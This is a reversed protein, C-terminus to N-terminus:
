PQGGEVLGARLTELVRPWADASARANADPDGGGTMRGYDSALAPPLGVAFPANIFFHGAGPYAHHAHAFRHGGSELRRLAVDSLGTSPWLRDDRGSLLLVPGRTREVPITARERAAPDARRIDDWTGAIDRIPSGLMLPPLYRTMAEGAGPFAALYPVDWGDRTWAPGAPQGGAALGPFGIGSGVYSVVAGVQPSTAGLLLALEGGRSPGVVGVRSGSVAPRSRLWGMGRELYELPIRDLAQPLGPEGFYALPFAAFGRSALLGALGYAPIGGESGSLLLVGPHPGPGPPLHLDGVLGNERVDRRTVGPAATRQVLEATGVPAGDQHATLVIRVAPDAAVPVPAGDPEGDALRMSRFPGMGDVGTWTGGPEPARQEVDVMGDTGVPFTASSLWSRGSADSRHATLTVPTGPALGTLLVRTREDTLVDTESLVIRAGASPGPAGGTCGATAGAALAALGALVTRRTPM